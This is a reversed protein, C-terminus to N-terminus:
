WFRPINLVVLKSVNHKQSAGQSNTKSGSRSGRGVEMGAGLLRPPFEDSFEGCHPRFFM